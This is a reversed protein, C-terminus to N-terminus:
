FRKGKMWIRDRAGPKNEEIASILMQSVIYKVHKNPKWRRSNSYLSQFDLKKTKNKAMDKPDLVTGPVYFTNLLYQM